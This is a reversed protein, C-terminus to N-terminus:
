REEKEKAQLMEQKKRYLESATEPSDVGTANKVPAFEQEREVEMIIFDKLERKVKEKEGARAGQNLANYKDAVGKLIHFVDFMFKECKYANPETAEVLEGNEDLYNAKKHALHVPLKQTALANMVQINFMNNLIHSQNYKLTGDENRENAMEPSIESYEIVTTEGNKKCYMGVKEEPRAKVVSKGAALVNNEIALGVFTPDIPEVIINDVGTVFIWEVGRRKMDKICGSNRLADFVGGHGDAAQKIQKDEGVLIKGEEDFMPLKAQKFFMIAGKPYGFCDNERFFRVTDDHNEESTMIYWPIDVQYNKRGKKMIETLIQFISKDMGDNKIFYTGKPGNHGLRTGQGGAMTVVALKGQAIAIRGTVDLAAKEEETMQKKVVFDPPEFGVEEDTAQEEKANKVQEELTKLQNQDFKFLSDLFAKKEETTELRLYAKWLQEQGLQFCLEKAQMERDDMM